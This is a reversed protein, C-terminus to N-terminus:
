DRIPTLPKGNSWLFVRCRKRLREVRRGYYADSSSRAPDEVVFWVPFFKELRRKGQINQYYVWGPTLCEVLIIKEGKAIALDAMASKAGWVGIGHPLVDWGENRFYKIAAYRMYRHMPNRAEMAREARRVTTPGLRSDMCLAAEDSFLEHRTRKQLQNLTIASM